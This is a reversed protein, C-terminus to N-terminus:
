HYSKYYKIFLLVSAEDACALSIQLKIEVTLEEARSLRGRFRASKLPSNSFAPKTNEFHLKKWFSSM